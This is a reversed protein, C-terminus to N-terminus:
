GHSSGSETTIPHSGALVQQALRYGSRDANRRVARFAEEIRLRSAHCFYDALHLVQARKADTTESQMSREARLCTATIAFLETGIDVFRGLLIQQRELKPGHRLMAHFLTRALKRSTRAAYRLHRTLLATESGGVKFSELPLWQKPYWRLYFMAAKAAARLRQSLPLKSDLVRASIKLHPDLAERAIFLRMIESSGEFITNIRSDRLFRELPVPDEGRARLSAATEYGRGGRIQVADNVITWSQESGWMKCMAAELRVDAHKDGDVASAALLTMSEMAFTNAAMRAIKDAIAAHKGIAAGWQVREGAWRSTIELCRKALGVCAAPLTLRGTNLTTLAVRLGKGETLLINERPVRVNTFRIVGNFLAKLGMFRCRHTVEVGPWDTEVIFATIQDKTKGAVMKRPTKAMVVIVGAKTGNTCWLKEGNLIFSQGDPTPEAHTQMTAPDSGAGSETLAFASIEGRAVRPLYKRKQEETGFLILPQSVGISQHASLLATLNGCHGGLLMAARCYNTQSLGLGGYQPSIKIGFAGLRALEELVCEPIEGTRDIEDPDVKDHLVAGLKQLFVDGEHRDEASQTPFPRIHSFDASGMFLGTVFSPQQATERAAETLELAARQGASMKSTDILSRPEEGLPEAQAKTILPNTGAMDAKNIVYGNQKPPETCSNGGLVRGSDPTEPYFRTGSAAMSRMLACPAFQASGGAVLRDMAAVLAAAGVSDAYRLPGGRFPAFGTGMIMAFDVDDPETVVQEELCRAAENVLLLVMREQLDKQSLASPVQNRVISAVKQNPQSKGKRHLYFGRGTKRGLLGAQVMKSLTEPVSMRDPYNAALSDAVHLAVDIGVEDLLRMPGMPMGFDLMAEDLKSLAAGAEFLTGAELLYPMLIRNVLFGPSDKVVVPLKGIQQVFRLARQLVEPSTQRAAVIEVLQMRHVPNFFHLGIVREPRLTAAALESVPLASTNTALITDEAVLEDLRRFIKQKLELKEVAAEIVLDAQRLPVEVPAPYVRDMGQRVEQSTFFHRKAGEQYIRAIAAMGNAVQETNLDRLIVPLKRASLWQAIGAGMVGSGIVATHTIPKPQVRSPAQSPRLPDPDVATVLGKRQAETTTPAGVSSAVSPSAMLRKKAREQLFFVQILNRCAETQVLELIAERELALSAPIPRSVGRTVVELAKCVAPYNGRTKRFLERRVRAAVLAAMPRNNLLRRGSRRPKGRRIMRAAFEVLYEAPALEDVMGCKMAQKAPLTKGALIIDLAKLLGVLRPLRTSGGWAPLLGLLTEPLGLKTAADSSAIRYDCALCLEYGGGLAAGHVAAVTPIPLAAVRSIVRQGLEILQRVDELSAGENMAKLDVGAIFISRKASTIVLGKLQSAAAIFDIEEELEELTRRDFINAASAPRDFTLVCIQDDRVFRQITRRSQEPSSTTAPGDPFPPERFSRPALGTTKSSASPQPPLTKIM